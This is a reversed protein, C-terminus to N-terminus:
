AIEVLGFRDRRGPLSEHDGRLGPQYLILTSPATKPFIPHLSTPTTILFSFPWSIPKILLFISSGSPTNSDLALAISSPIHNAQSRPSLSIMTSLSESLITFTNLPNSGVGLEMLFTESPM